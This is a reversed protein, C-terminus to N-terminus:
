YHFLRELGVCDAIGYFVLLTVGIIAFNQRSDVRQLHSILTNILSWVLCLEFFAVVSM